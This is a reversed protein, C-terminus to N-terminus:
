IYYKVNQQGHMMCHNKTFTWSSACIGKLINIQLETCTELVDHEDDPSVSQMLIAEPLHRETNTAADHAPQTYVHLSSYIFKNFPIKADFQVIVM